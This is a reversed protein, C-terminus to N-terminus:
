RATKLWSSNAPTDAIPVTQRSGGGPGAQGEQHDAACFNGCIIAIKVQLAPPRRRALRAQFDGM